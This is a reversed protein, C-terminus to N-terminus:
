KRIVRVGFARQLASDIAADEGPNPPFGESYKATHAHRAWLARYLASRTPLARDILACGCRVTARGAIVPDDPWRLEGSLTTILPACLERVASLLPAESIGSEKSEGVAIVNDGRDEPRGEFIRGEPGIPPSVFLLGGDLRQASLYPALVPAYVSDWTAQLAVLRNDATAPMEPAGDALGAALTLLRRDNPATITRRLASVLFSARGTPAPRGLAAARVGVVLAIPTASPFYLPVFHLVDLAHAQVAESRWSPPPRPARVYFALAGPVPLDLQAMAAFWRDAAASSAVRWHGQARSPSAALAIGLAATM